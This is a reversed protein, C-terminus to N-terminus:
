QKFNDYLAEVYVDALLNTLVKVSKGSRSCGHSFSESISKHNGNEIQLNLMRYAEGVVRRSLRGRTFLCRGALLVLLLLLLLLGGRRLLGGGQVGIVVVVEEGGQVAECRLGRGSVPDASSNSM